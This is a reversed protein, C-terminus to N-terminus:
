QDSAVRSAAERLLADTVQIRWERGSSLFSLVVEKVPKCLTMQAGLAYAVMQPRYADARRAVEAEDSVADTKWDVVVAGDPEVFLMDMVGALVVGGVKLSFPVEHYCASAAEARRLLPSDLAAQLLRRAEEVGAPPVGMRRAEANLMAHLRAADELGARSLCHHVISGIQRGLDSGAAEEGDMPMPELGHGLRSPVVVTPGRNADALTQGTAQHWQARAALREQAARPLTAPDPLKIRFPQAARNSIALASTDYVLGCPRQTDWAPNEPRADEGLFRALGADGGGWGPLLILYDRARTAAVYFLRADEARERRAEHDGAPWNPTAFGDDKEGLYFAFQGDAPARDRFVVFRAQPEQRKTMDAVFVIPFELGKAGHISLFQVVNDGAEASPSETERAATTRLRDLWRVFGRFSVRQTAELARAQDVVKLLNAVRQEGRPRLLFLELAKTREYLRQLLLSLPEANRRAHFESLLAMADGIASQGTGTPPALYSLTGQHHKTLLLEDDSVGFFPGRLAAVLAARDHPNDLAKLVSVLSHVEHSVYFHRGGVVRLPVGAEELAELYADSHTFREALIAIDGYRAPRLHKERKDWVEWHETKVIRSILAAVCRAELQRATDLKSLAEEHGPPPYLLLVAPRESAAERYPHLPVYSPQYRGGDDPPEIIPEFIANVAEAIGPVPRFSQSLTVEDGQAKLRQKAKEYIEIDARRFRYISQKPDGVIFLKGPALEAQDWSAAHRDPREALFFAIEVQLPDTDQFEDVLIFDYTAKFHDRAARNDRLMNRTLLLLDDFDLAGEEDKAKRFADLYGTLAEAVGTAVAAGVESRFRDHRAKLEEFIAKAQTHSEKRRWHDKGPFSRRLNLQFIAAERQLADLGECLVATRRADEMQNRFTAARDYALDCNDDLMTVLAALKPRAYALFADPDPAPPAKPRGEILDRCGLMRQALQYISNASGQDELSIGHAIARILAPNGRALEDDLWESWVRERLLSAALEDLVQFQPDVGAEVPREHLLAACFSHITGIPAHGLDELAQRFRERAADDLDGDLAQEIEERVRMRLEAAARETFTVAVIRSLRAKGSRVLNLLRTVLETTKGAGAAAEVALSTGLDERVRGRAQEDVCPKENV